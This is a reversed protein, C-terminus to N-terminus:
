ATNKWLHRDARHRGGPFGLSMWSLYLDLPLYPPKGKSVSRTIEFDDPAGNYTIIQPVSLRRHSPNDGLIPLRRIVRRLRRETAGGGDGLCLFPTVAGFLIERVAQHTRNEHTTNVLLNECGSMWKRCQDHFVMGFNANTDGM